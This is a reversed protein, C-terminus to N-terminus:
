RKERDRDPARGQYAAGRMPCELGLQGGIVEVHLRPPKSQNM